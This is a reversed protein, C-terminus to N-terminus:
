FADFSGKYQEPQDWETVFVPLSFVNSQNAGRGFADVFRNARVAFRVDERVDVGPIAAHSTVLGFSGSVRREEVIPAPEVTDTARRLLTADM